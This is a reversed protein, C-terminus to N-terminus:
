FYNWLETSCYLTVAIEVYYMVVKYRILESFLGFCGFYKPNLFIYKFIINRLSIVDISLSKVASFHTNFSIESTRNM